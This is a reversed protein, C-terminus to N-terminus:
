KWKWEHRSVAERRDVRKRESKVDWFEVTKGLPAVADLIFGASAFNM